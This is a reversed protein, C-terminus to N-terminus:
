AARRTHTASQAAVHMSALWQASRNAGDLDLAAARPQFALLEEIKAALRPADMDAVSLCQMAGLAAMRAARESQENEGPMEYPVVLAPVGAVVIDLATNYGCQSLSARALRMEAVMDPVQRLLEVGAVGRATQQLATWQAEPLFPGAILRMPLAQQRTRDWLARAQLACHFLAEGVIGGGASVLLHAGRPAPAVPERQPVVYGTYHVPVRMPQRPHFSDELRAFSPDAHVLVADFYREALWRARDDHHQQDRRSDVLIDRLSCAILAAAGAQNKAARILPLIENAFKKRGFPFLEVLVVAPRHQRVAADILERRRSQAQAVDHLADRSVVTHGDDMGLAPLDILEIARPVPLGPPLRGGNLFVVHFQEALAAALAFSRTLHGIGLSHQCYFLLAPRTAGTRATAAAEPLPKSLLADCM